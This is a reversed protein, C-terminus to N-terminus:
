PNATWIVDTEVLAVNYTGNNGCDYHSYNHSTSGLSDVRITSLYTNTGGNARKCVALSQLGYSGAKTIYAESKKSTFTSHGSTNGDSTNFVCNPNSTTCAPPGAAAASAVGAITSGLLVVSGLMARAKGHKM